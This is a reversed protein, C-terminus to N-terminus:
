AGPRSQTTPMPVYRYWERSRRPQDYWRDALNSYWLWFSYRPTRYGLVQWSRPDRDWTAQARTLPHTVDYAFLAASVVLAIAFCVASARVRKTLALGTAVLFAVALMAYPVAFWLRHSLSSRIDQGLTEAGPAFSLFAIGSLVAVVIRTRSGQLVKERAM